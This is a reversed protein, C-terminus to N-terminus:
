EEQQAPAASACNANVFIAIQKYKDDGKFAKAKIKEGVAPCDSFFGILDKDHSLLSNTNKTLYSDGGSRKFYYDHSTGDLTSTLYLDCDGKVLLRLYLGVQDMHGIVGPMSIEKIFRFDYREGLYMFGFAQMDNEGLKVEKGKEIITIGWFFGSEEVKNKNFFNVSVEMMTKVTDGASNVYYGKARPKAASAIFVASLFLSLFLIRKTKM